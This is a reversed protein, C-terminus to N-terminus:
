ITGAFESGEVYAKTVGLERGRALAAEPTSYRTAKTWELTWAWKLKQLEKSHEPGYEMVWTREETSRLCYLNTDTM